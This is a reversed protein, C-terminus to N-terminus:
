QRGIRDGLYGPPRRSRKHVRRHVGGRIQLVLCRRRRKGLRRRLRRFARCQRIGLACRDHALEFQDLRDLGIVRGGILRQQVAGIDIRHLHVARLQPGRAIGIEGVRDLDRADQGVIPQVRRGDDGGQQVVHDLVGRGGAVINRVHEALLDGDQDLAHGLQRPQLKLGLMRALGLVQAFEDQGNRAVHPHQQDLQGVAQVVHAGEVEDLRLLALADAAFRQFDIRRQAPRDADVGDGGLQFFQRELMQVGRGADGDLPTQLRQLELVAAGDLGDRGLDLADQGFGPHLRPDLPSLLRGIGDPALQLALCDAKRGQRVDVAEADDDLALVVTVAREADNVAGPRHHRLPELVEDRRGLRVVIARQMRRYNPRAAQADLHLDAGLRHVPHGLVPHRRVPAVLILGITEVPLRHLSVAAAVGQQVQAM